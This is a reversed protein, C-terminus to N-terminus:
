CTPSVPPAPLLHWHTVAGTVEWRERNYTYWREQTEHWECTVVCMAGTSATYGIVPVSRYTTEWWEQPATPPQYTVPHWM